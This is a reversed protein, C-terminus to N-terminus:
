LDLISLYLSRAEASLRKGIQRELAHLDLKQQALDTLVTVYSPMDTSLGFVESTLSDISTGFSETELADVRSIGDFKRIVRVYKAPIEQLVIPSHTSVIAMSQNDELIQRLVHMTASLLAPHLHNEPEDIVVLSGPEIEAHLSTLISLTAKHGAGLRRFKARAAPETLSDDDNFDAERLIPQVIERWREYRGIDSLKKVAASFRRSFSVPGAVRLTEKEPSARERLGIYVYKLSESLYQSRSKSGPIKIQGPLFFGDFISYSVVIVKSISERGEVRAPETDDLGLFNAVFKALLQTKGAGNKGILANLIGPIEQDFDFNFVCSTLTRSGHLRAAFSIQLSHSVPELNALSQPGLFRILSYDFAREDEFEERLKPDFKVDRLAKLVEQYMAPGLKSLNQYFSGSQGLSFFEEGLYEFPELPLPTRGERQGKEAIKTQGILSKSDSDEVFYLSFSTKLGFDDWTSRSLLYCPLKADEPLSGVYFLPRNKM